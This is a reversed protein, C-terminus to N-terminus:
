YNPPSRPNLLTMIQGQDVLPFSSSAITIDARSEVQGSIASVPLARLEQSYLGGAGGNVTVQAALRPACCAIATATGFVFDVHGVSLGYFELSMLAHSAEGGAAVAIGAADIRAGGNAAVSIHSSGSAEAFQGSIASAMAQSSSYNSSLYAFPPGAIPSSSSIAM